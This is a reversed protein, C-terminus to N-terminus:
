DNKPAKFNPLELVVVNCRQYIDVLSRTGRVLTDDVVEELELSVVQNM